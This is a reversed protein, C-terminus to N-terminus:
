YDSVGGGASWNDDSQGGFSDQKMADLNEYTFVNTHYKLPSGGRRANSTPSNSDRSNEFKGGKPVRFSSAQTSKRDFFSNVIRKIKGKHEKGTDSAIDSV